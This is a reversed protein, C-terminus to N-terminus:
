VDRGRATRGGDDGDRAVAIHVDRGTTGPLTPFVLQVRGEGEAARRQRRLGDDLQGPYRQVARHDDAEGPEAFHDIGDAADVDADVVVDLRAIGAPDPALSAM